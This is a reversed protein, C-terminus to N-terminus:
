LLPLLASSRSCRLFDKTEWGRFFVRGLKYLNSQVANQGIDADHAEEISFRNGKGASERIEKEILPKKFKPSNDNLDQIHISVRHLELPNELVLDAKVVCSPKKGCFSERDMRESIVLDGTSLNIDCYRKRTGESDVRAKRSSLTRLDLGLDKAVNGIVSERKMEEPISYSLDGNVLHLSVIFPLLASSRGCRLFDKTEWGSVFGTKTNNIDLRSDVLTIILYSTLKSNKEDYSIDKLEPVEALNDSILLYM